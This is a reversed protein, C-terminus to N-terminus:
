KKQEEKPIISVIEQGPNILDGQQLIAPFQVIGDKEAKIITTENQHRLGDLEQKKIFLEQELSQIRQNVSIISEEKYQKLADKKKYKSEKKLLM